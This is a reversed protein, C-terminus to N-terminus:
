SLTVLAVRLAKSWISPATTWTQGVIHTGGCDVGILYTM